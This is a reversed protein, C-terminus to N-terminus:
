HSSFSKYLFLGNLWVFYLERVLLRVFTCCSYKEPFIHVRFYLYVSSSTPPPLHRRPSISVVPGARGIARTLRLSEKRSVHQFQIETVAPSAHHSFVALLFPAKLSFVSVCPSGYRCLRVWHEGVVWHKNRQVARCNTALNHALKILKLLSHVPIQQSDNHGRLASRLVILTKAESFFM